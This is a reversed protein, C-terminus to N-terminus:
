LDAQEMIRDDRPLALITRAIPGNDFRNQLKEFPKDEQHEILNLIPGLRLLTIM